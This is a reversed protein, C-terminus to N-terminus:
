TWRSALHHLNAQPTREIMSLYTVFLCGFLDGIISTGKSDMRVNPIKSEQAEFFATFPLSYLMGLSVCFGFSIWADYAGALETAIRSDMREFVAETVKMIRKDTM